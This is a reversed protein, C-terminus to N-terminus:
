RWIAGGLPLNGNNETNGQVMESGLTGLVERAHELDVHRERADLLSGMQGFNM